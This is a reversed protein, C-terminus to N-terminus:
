SSTLFRRLAATVDAPRELLPLHGCGPITELRARPILEAYREGHARPILGDKEGWLVLTPCTIRSLRGELKPNHLYPNWALRATAQQAKLFPILIEADPPHDPEFSKMMLYLPQATDAFLMDALEPPRHAWMDPVPAGEIRLGAASILVLKGIREPWRVAHEAAIWGGLSQGVVAPRSLGLALFLDDYHFAIDEIDTINEIGESDGFGPHAPIVVTFENALDDCWELWWAEGLASHLFVLAPGAGGKLVQTKKGAVDVFHTEYDM